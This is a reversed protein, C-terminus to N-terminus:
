EWDNRQQKQWSISDKIEDFVGMKNAKTIMKSLLAKNYNGTESNDEVMLIVKAQTNKMNKIYSPVHIIGRRITTEFEIAKM